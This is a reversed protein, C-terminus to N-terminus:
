LPRELAEVLAQAEDQTQVSGMYGELLTRQEETPPADVCVRRRVREVDDLTWLRTKTGVARYRVHQSILRERGERM